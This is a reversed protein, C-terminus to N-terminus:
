KEDKTREWFEPKTTLVRFLVNHGVLGINTLGPNSKLYSKIDSKVRESRARSSDLSEISKPYIELMMKICASNFGQSFSGCDNKSIKAKIMM